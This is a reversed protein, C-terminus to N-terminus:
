IFQGFCFLGAPLLKQASPLEWLINEPLRTVSREPLGQEEGTRMVECRASVRGFEGTIGHCNAGFNNGTVVNGIKRYDWRFSIGCVLFSSTIHKPPPPPNFRCETCESTRVHQM